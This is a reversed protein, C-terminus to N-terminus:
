RRSRRDRVMGVIIPAGFVIISAGLVGLWLLAVNGSTFGWWISGFGALATIVISLPVVVATRRDPERGSAHRPRRTPDRPPDATRRFGSILLYVGFAAFFWGAVPTSAGRGTESLPPSLGIVVGGVAWVAGFLAQTVWSM